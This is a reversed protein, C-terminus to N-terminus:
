FALTVNATLNHGSFGDSDDGGSDIYLFRYEAGVSVGSTLNLNLGASVQTAFDTASDEINTPVGGISTVELDSDAIGVGAGLYPDFSANKGGFHYAANALLLTSAFDGEVPVAVGLTEGEDFDASLYTLEGEVTVNDSVWTGIAGSVTYGTDFSFTVTPGATVDIDEPAIVGGSLSAYVNGSTAEDAYAPASLACVMATALLLKTTNM